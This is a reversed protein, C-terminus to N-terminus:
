ALVLTTVLCSVTPVGMGVVVVMPAMVGIVAVEVLFVAWTTHLIMTLTLTRGALGVLLNPSLRSMRIEDELAKM